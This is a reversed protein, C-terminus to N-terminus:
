TEYYARAYRLALGALVKERGKFKEMNKEYFRRYPETEQLVVALEARTEKLEAKLGAEKDFLREM